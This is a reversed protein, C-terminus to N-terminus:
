VEILRGDRIRIIRSSYSAVEPDHTVMMITVNQRENLEKLLQMIQKGSESDLNGTPEDAFIIKPSNILARAIAVRQKEGGSLQHPFKNIKAGLNVDELIKKARKNREKGPLGAFYGAISVNELVTLTPLLGFFQLVFGVNKARFNALWSESRSRIDVGLIELTDCSTPSLLGALSYLLTSKGSGSPGMISNFSGLEIKLNIGNLAHVKGNGNYTKSLGKVNIALDYTESKIDIEVRSM